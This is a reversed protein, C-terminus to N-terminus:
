SASRSPSPAPTCWSTSRACRRRRRGARLRHLGVRGDLGSRRALARLEDLSVQSGATEYVPGGVVYGRVPLSEPLQALADLFTAHGKWRAFTAVLGVRTVGDGAPPLGALADLDLPRAAPRSASSTWPTGCARAGRARPGLVQRPTPAGRQRSNAVVAACRM